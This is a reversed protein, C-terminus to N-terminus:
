SRVEGDCNCGGPTRAGCVGCYPTPDYDPGHLELSERCKREYWQNFTEGPIVGPYDMEEEAEPSIMTVITAEFAALESRIRSGAERPAEPQTQETTM